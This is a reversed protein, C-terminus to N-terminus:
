AEGAEEEAAERHLLRPREEFYTHIREGLRHLHESLPDDGILLQFQDGTNDLTIGALNGSWLVGDEPWEKKSGLQREKGRLSTWRLYAGAELQAELMASLSDLEMQFGEGSWTGNTQTKHVPITVTGAGVSASARGGVGAFVEFRESEGLPQSVGAMAELALEIGAEATITAQFDANEPDTSEVRIDQAQINNLGFDAIGHLDLLPAAVLDPTEVRKSLNDSLRVPGPETWVTHDERFEQEGKLYPLAINWVSVATEAVETGTEVAADVDDQAGEVGDQAAEVDGEASEVGELDPTGTDLSLGESATPQLDLGTMLDDASEGAVVRDAIADAQREHTSGAQGVGTTDQFLHAAEHAVTHLDAGGGLAVAGGMEFGDAGMAATAQEAAAGSAVPVEGLSRGGFLSELTDLYPLSGGADELGESALMMAAQDNSQGEEHRAEPHRAPATESMKRQSKGM